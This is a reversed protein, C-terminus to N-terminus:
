SVPNSPRYGAMFASAPMESKGTPILSDIVLVGEATYIGLQKAEELWLSGAEGYGNRVHAKTIIVESTGITTRSRPWHAYARIERELQVAPKSWDITGNHKAILTDYTALSENQASAPLSGDLIASLNEILLQSGIVALQDALNEKTETGSLPVIQQAFVPGADMKDGLRMLSVGTQSAGELIVSEVPTSGRHLPLLSPHINVIGRPFLDLIAAPLIKGYAILVGAEAEFSALEEAADSLRAPSLLPISHQAAITAVELPREVKRSKASPQQAVVVAAVQYGAAILSRLTPASTGVGTALRENGFFLIKKLM